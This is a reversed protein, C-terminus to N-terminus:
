GIGTCLIPCRQLAVRASVGTVTCSQAPDGPGAGIGSGDQMTWFAIFEGVRKGQINAVRRLEDTYGGKSCYNRKDIQRLTSSVYRISLLNIM